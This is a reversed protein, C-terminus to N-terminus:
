AGRGHGSPVSALVPVDVSIWEGYGIRYALIPWQSNISDANHRAIFKIAFGEAKKSCEFTLRERGSEADNAGVGYSVRVRKGRITFPLGFGSSPSRMLPAVQERVNGSHHRSVIEIGFSM